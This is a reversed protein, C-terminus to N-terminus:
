ADRLLGLNILRLRYARLDTPYKRNQCKINKRCPHRGDPIRHLSTSDNPVLTELFRGAEM